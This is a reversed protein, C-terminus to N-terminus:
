NKKGRSAAVDLAGTGSFPDGDENLKGGYEADINDRDDDDDDSDQSSSKLWESDDDLQTLEVSNSYRQSNKSHAWMVAISMFV